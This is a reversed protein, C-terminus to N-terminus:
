QSPRTDVSGPIRQFGITGSYRYIAPPLASFDFEFQDGPGIEVDDWVQSTLLYSVDDENTWLVTQVVDLDLPLIAPRFAGNLIQIFAVGEPPPETTTTTTPKRDAEVVADSPTSAILSGVVTFVLFVAFVLVASKILTTRGL